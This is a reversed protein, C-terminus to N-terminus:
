PSPARLILRNAACHRVRALRLQLGTALRALDEGPHPRCEPSVHARVGLVLFPLSQPAAAHEAGLPRVSQAEVHVDVQLEGRLLVRPFISSRAADAQLPYRISCGVNRRISNSRFRSLWTSTVRVAGIGALPSCGLITSPSSVSTSLLACIMHPFSWPRPSVAGVRSRKSMATQSIASGSASSIATFASSSAWM